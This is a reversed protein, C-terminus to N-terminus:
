SPNLKKKVEQLIKIEKDLNVFKEDTCRYIYDGITIRDMGLKLPDNEQAIYELCRQSKISFYSIRYPDEAIECCELPEGMESYAIFERDSMLEFLPKYMEYSECDKESEFQKGDDAIYIIKM